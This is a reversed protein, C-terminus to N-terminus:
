FTNINENNKDNYVVVWVGEKSPDLVNGRHKGSVHNAENTCGMGEKIPDITNSNIENNNINGVNNTNVKIYKHDTNNNNNNNNNNNSQVTGTHEKKSITGVGKNLLNITAINDNGNSKNDTRM